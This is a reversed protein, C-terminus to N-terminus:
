LSRWSYDNISEAEWIVVTGEFEAKGNFIGASIHDMVMDDISNADPGFGGGNNTFIQTCSEKWRCSTNGPDECILSCTSSFWGHNHIERSYKYGALGGNSKTVSKHAYL